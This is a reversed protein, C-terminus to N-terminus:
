LVLSVGQPPTALAVVTEQKSVVVGGPQELTIVFAQPNTVLLPNSIPVVATSQGAPIDFVGGDVPNADRDPDVIWLQYQSESPNNSPLDTLTMYGEQLEDSWVVKGSMGKFQNQGQFESQFLKEGQALLKERADAPSLKSPQDALGPNTNPNKTVFSFIFLVAFLAAAGWALVPSSALRRWTPFPVVSPPIGASTKQEVPPSQTSPVSQPINQRLTTALSEPLPELQSQIADIELTAAILELSSDSTFGHTNSLKQWEQSEELTLDGLIRGAELEEFRQQIDQDSM